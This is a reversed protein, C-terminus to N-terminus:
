PIPLPTYMSTESYIRSLMIPSAWYDSNVELAKKSDAEAEDLKGMFFETEALAAWSGANLPDLDVAQRNLQLAEDFRGFCFATSLRWIYRNPIERNSLLRGSSPLM